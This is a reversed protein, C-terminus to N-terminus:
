QVSTAPKESNRATRPARAKKPGHVKAALTTKGDLVLYSRLLEFTKEGIGKVQMLDTTKKFGGNAKRYEVIRLGAKEGVRPLLAFQSAEATNINIVGTAAVPASQPTDAASLTVAGFSSALVITLFLTAIYSKRMSRDGKREKKKQKQTANTKQSKVRKKNRTTAQKM